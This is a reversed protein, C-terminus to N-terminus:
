GQKTLDVVHGQPDAILAFAVGPVHQPDQVIRGGLERARNVVSDVFSVVGSGVCAAAINKGSM